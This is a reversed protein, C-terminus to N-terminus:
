GPLGQDKVSRVRRRIAFAGALAVVLAVLAVGLYLRTNASFREPLAVIEAMKSRVVDFFIAGRSVPVGLEALTDSLGSPAAFWGIVGAGWNELSEQAPTHILPGAEADLYILQQITRAQVSAGPPGGNVWTLTHAPGLDGTPGALPRPLDGTGYWLGTQEMLRSMQEVNDPRILEMPQDIGPGIITASEPGKATAPAISGVLAALLIAGAALRRMRVGFQTSTKLQM